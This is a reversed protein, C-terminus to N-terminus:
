AGCELDTQGTPCFLWWGSGEDYTAVGAALRVSQGDTPHLPFTPTPASLLVCLLFGVLGVAVAVLAAGIVQLTRTSLNM